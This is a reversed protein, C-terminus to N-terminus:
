FSLSIHMDNTSDCFYSGEEKLTPTKDNEVFRELIGLCLIGVHGYHIYVIQSTVDKRRSLYVGDSKSYQSFLAGM